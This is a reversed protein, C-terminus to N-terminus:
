ILGSPKFTCIKSTGNRMAKNKLSKFCIQKESRRRSRWLTAGCGLTLATRTPLAKTQQKKTTPSRQFNKKNKTATCSLTSSAPGWPYVGLWWPERLSEFITQSQHLSGGNVSHSDNQGVKAWNEGSSHFLNKQEFVLVDCVYHAIVPEGRIGHVDPYRPSEHSWEAPWWWSRGSQPWTQGTRCRASSQSPSRAGSAVPV